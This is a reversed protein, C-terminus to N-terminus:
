RWRARGLPERPGFLLTESSKILPLQPNVRDAHISGSYECVVSPSAEAPGEKSRVLLQVHAQLDEKGVGRQTHEQGPLEKRSLASRRDGPSSPSRKSTAPMNDPEAAAEGYSDNGFLLDVVATEVGEILGPQRAHQDRRDIIDHGDM